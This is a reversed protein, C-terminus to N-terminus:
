SGPEPEGDAPDGADPSMGEPAADPADELIGDVDGPEVIGPGATLHAETAQEESGDDDASEVPEIEEAVMPAHPEVDEADTELDM